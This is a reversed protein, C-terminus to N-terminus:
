GYQRMVRGDWVFCSCSCERVNVRLICQQGSEMRCQFATGPQEIVLCATNGQPDGESVKPGFLWLESIDLTAGSTLVDREWDHGDIESLWRDDKLRAAWYSQSFFQGIKSGPPVCLAM